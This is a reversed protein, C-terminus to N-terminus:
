LDVSVTDSVVPLMLEQGPRLGELDVAPNYTEVIWVPLNGHSKAISVATDGTRVRYFQDGVSGGRSALWGEARTVHHADRKREVVSRTDADIPLRVITGVALQDNELSLDSADAIVEVPLGSWRAFHALSEGRRLEFSVTPEPDAVPLSEPAVPPIESVAEVMAVPTVTESPTPTAASPTTRGVACGALVSLAVIRFM